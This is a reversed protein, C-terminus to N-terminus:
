RYPIAIMESITPDYSTQYGWAVAQALVPAELLSSLVYPAKRYSYSQQTM